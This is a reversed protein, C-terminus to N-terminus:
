GPRIAGVFAALHFQAQPDLYRHAAGVPCALRARCGHDRCDAGAQSRVHRVCAATDLSGSAFAHVPCGRLCPKDTCAECPPPQPRLPPLSLRQAFLLAGRYAHWLGWVPHILLGLPSPHLPECRRAVRQFPLSPLDNPYTAAAGLEGALVDIIRRSWRDLPHPAGDGAERSSAFRPWRASGTFGLLVITAPQTVAASIGTFEGPLVHCAGRLALGAAAARRALAVVMPDTM